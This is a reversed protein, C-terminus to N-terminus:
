TGGCGGLLKHIKSKEIHRRSLIGIILREIRRKM